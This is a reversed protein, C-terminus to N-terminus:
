LTTLIASQPLDIDFITKKHRETTFYEFTNKSTNSINVLM